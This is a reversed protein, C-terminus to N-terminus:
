AEDRLDTKGTAEIDTIVAKVWDPQEAEPQSLHRHMDEIEWPYPEPVPKPPKPLGARHRRMAERAYARHKEPDRYPM